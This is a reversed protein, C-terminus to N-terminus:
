YAEETYYKTKVIPWVNTGPSVRLRYKFDWIKMCIPDKLDGLEVMNCILFLSPSFLPSNM